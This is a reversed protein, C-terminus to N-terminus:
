QPEPLCSSPWSHRRSQRRLELCATSSPSGSQSSRLTSRRRVAPHPSSPGLFDPHGTRERLRGHGNATHVAHARWCGPVRIRGPVRRRSHNRRVSLRRRTRRGFSRHGVGDCRNSRLDDRITRWRFRHHDRDLVIRVARGQSRRRRHDLVFNGRSDAGPGRRPGFSSRSQPQIGM